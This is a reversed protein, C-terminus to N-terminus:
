LQTLQIDSAVVAGAITPGYNPNDISEDVTFTGTVGITASSGDLFSFAATTDVFQYTVLTDANAGSSLFFSFLWAAILFRALTMVAGLALQYAVRQRYTRSPRGWHM